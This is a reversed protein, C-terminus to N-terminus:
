AGHVHSICQALRLRASDESQGKPTALSSVCDSLKKRIAAYKEASPTHRHKAAEALIPMNHAYLPHSENYPRKSALQLEKEQKQVEAMADPHLRLAQWLVVHKFSSTADSHLISAVANAPLRSLGFLTTNTWADDTLM